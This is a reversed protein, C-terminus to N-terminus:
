SLAKLVYDHYFKIKKLDEQNRCNFPRTYGFTGNSSAEWVQGDVMAKTYAANYVQILSNMLETIQPNQQVAAPVVVNIRDSIQSSNICQESVAAMSGFFKYDDGAAAHAATTCFLLTSVCTIKQLFNM